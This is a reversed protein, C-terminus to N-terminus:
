GLRPFRAHTTRKGGIAGTPGFSPTHSPTELRHRTIRHTNRSSYRPLWPDSRALCGLVASRKPSVTTAASRAQTRFARVTSVPASVPFPVRIRQCLGTALTPSLVQPAVEGRALVRRRRVRRAGAFGGHGHAARPALVAAHVTHLHVHGHRAVIGARAASPPADLEPALQVARRYVGVGFLAVAAELVGVVQLGLPLQAPWPDVQPQDLHEKAIRVCVKRKDYVLTKGMRKIERVAVKPEHRLVEVTGLGVLFVWQDAAPRRLHVDALAARIDLTCWLREFHKERHDERPSRVVDVEWELRQVRGDKRLHAVRREDVRDERIRLEPVLPRRGDLHARRGVLARGAAGLAADLAALADRAIRAAQAAHAAVQHLLRRPRFRARAAAHLADDARVAVDLPLLLAVHLPAGRAPRAVRARERDRHGTHLEEGLDM